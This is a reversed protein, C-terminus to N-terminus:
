FRLVDANKTLPTIARPGTTVIEASQVINQAAMASMNTARHGFVFLAAIESHDADFQALLKTAAWYEAHRLRRGVQDTSEDRSARGTWPGLLVMSKRLNRVSDILAIRARVLRLTRFKEVM